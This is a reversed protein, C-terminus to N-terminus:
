PAATATTTAGPTGEGPTGEGPPPPAGGPPPASATVEFTGNMEGPHFDCQFYYSGEPPTTFTIEATEGGSTRNGLPETLGNELASADAENLYVTLNHPTNGENVLTFTVETEPPAQLTGTDFANDTATVEYPDEPVPGDGGGEGAVEDSEFLTLGAGVMFGLVALSGLVTLAAGWGFRFSTDKTDRIVEMDFAQVSGPVVQDDHRALIDLVTERSENYSALQDRGSWTTEVVVQSPGSDAPSVTIRYDQFGDLDRMHGAAEAIETLAGGEGRSAELAGEAIAFTLLQQYRPERASHGGGSEANARMRGDEYVWGAASLLAFVGAAGLAVMAWDSSPDRQWWILAGAVAAFALGVVLPWISPDPLHIGSHDGHAGHETSEHAM